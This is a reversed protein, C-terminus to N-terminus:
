GNRWGWFPLHDNQTGSSPSALHGLQARDSVAREKEVPLPERFLLAHNRAQSQLAGPSDTTEPRGRFPGPIQFVPRPESNYVSCLQGTCRTSSTTREDTLPSGDM